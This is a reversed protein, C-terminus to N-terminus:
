EFVMTCLYLTVSPNTKKTLDHEKIFSRIDPDSLVQDYYEKAQQM